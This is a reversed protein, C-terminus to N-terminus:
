DAEGEPPLSLAPDHQRLFTLAETQSAFLRVSSGGLSQLTSVALRAAPQQTVILTLAVRRAREYDILKVFESLNTPLQMLGSVDAVVYLPPLSADVMALLAPSAARIEDLTPVGSVIVQMVRGTQLWRGEIPM